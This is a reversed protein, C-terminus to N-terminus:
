TKDYQVGQMDNDEKWSCNGCIDVEELLAGSETNVCIDIITGDSLTLLERYECDICQM